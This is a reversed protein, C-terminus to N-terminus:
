TFLDDSSNSFLWLVALLASMLLLQLMALMAYVTTLLLLELAQMALLRRQLMCRLANVNATATADLENAMPDTPKYFSRVHSAEYLILHPLDHMRGQDWHM